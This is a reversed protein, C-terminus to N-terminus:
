GDRLSLKSVGGAQRCHVDIARQLRKAALLENAPLVAIKLHKIPLSELCSAIEVGRIQVQSFLRRLGKGIVYSLASRCLKIKSASFAGAPPLSSVELGGCPVDRRTLILSASFLGM